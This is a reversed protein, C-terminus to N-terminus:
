ARASLLTDAFQVFGDGGHAQTMFRPAHKLRPLFGELNAVGVSLPAEAFMPEDNPSDGIFACRELSANFAERLFRKTMSLKDYTGFWGNVHISSVKATAGHKEFIAVIRDIDGQSLPVVDERFDVALDAMRFHQDASIAARPVDRLIEAGIERLRAQDAELEALPRAYLRRMQRASSDYRFALAGNEGIVGAVPWTRAIMDCWGAPRGTIPIVRLGVDRLQEIKAHVRAPVRGELTLTDDFDTLVVEVRALERADASSLPAPTM